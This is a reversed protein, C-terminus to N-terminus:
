EGIVGLGDARKAEEEGMDEGSGVEGAVDWPRSGVAAQGGDEALEIRSAEDLCGDVGLV